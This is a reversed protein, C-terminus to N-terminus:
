LCLNALSLSLPVRAFASHDAHLRWRGPGGFSCGFLSAEPEQLESAYSDHAGIFTINGYSRDCLESHGNCTSPTARSQLAAAPAFPSASVLTSAAAVISLIRPLIM